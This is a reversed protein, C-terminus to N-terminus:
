MDKVKKTKLEKKERHIRNKMDKVFKSQEGGSNIKHIKECRKSVIKECDGSNTHMKKKKMQVEQGNKEGEEFTHIHM